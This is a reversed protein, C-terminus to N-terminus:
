SVTIETLESENGSFDFVSIYYTGDKDLAITSSLKDNVGDGIRITKTIMKTQNRYINIGAIGENDTADWTVNRGDASLTPKSPAESDLLGNKVYYVYAENYGPNKALPSYYHNWSFCINAATYKATVNVQKTIFEGVPAVAANDRFNENNAWLILGPKTDVAAKYNSWWDDLNLKTHGGFSDQPCFIDGERFNTLAFVDKWMSGCQDASSLDPNIFPSMIMPIGPTSQSYHDLSVNLSKALAKAYVGNDSKNCADQINWIENNYYWAFIQDKYDTGYKKYLEDAIQNSINGNEEAFKAFYCDNAPDAAGAPTQPTGWGYLWWRNDSVPGLIAQMGYTKCAELCYKVEDPGTDCDLDVQAKKLFDIDTPYLSAVDKLQYFDPDQNKVSDRTNYTLDVISQLIIYKMGADVMNKCETNWRDQTWDKIYWSQIFSGCITRGQVESPSSEASSADPTKATKSCGCLATLLCAAVAISAEIRKKLSQGAM